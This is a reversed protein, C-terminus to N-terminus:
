WFCVLARSCCAWSRVLPELLLLLSLLVLPVAFAAAFYAIPVVAFALMPSFVSLSAFPPRKAADGRVIARVAAVRVVGLPFPFDCCLLLMLLSLLTLLVFPRLLPFLPRMLLLLSTLLRLLLLLPMLMLVPLLTPRSPPLPLVWLLLAGVVSVHSSPADVTSAATGVLVFRAACLRLPSALLCAAACRRCTVRDVVAAARSVLPNALAAAVLAVPAPTFAPVPAFAHPVPPDTAVATGAAAKAVSQSVLAVAPTVTFVTTCPSCTAAVPAGATWSSSAASESAAALRPSQVSAVLLPGAVSRSAVVLAAANGAPTAARTAAAEAASM